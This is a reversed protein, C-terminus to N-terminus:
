CFRALFAALAANFEAPAELNVAHGADLGVVELQPMTREAFRRHAAFREEREGVVLLAPVTNTAVRGRVSSDPITYLGTYAIGHPTHLACDAILAARV